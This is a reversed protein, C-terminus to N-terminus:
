VMLNKGQLIKSDYPNTLIEKTIKILNEVEKRDKRKLKKFYKESSKSFILKHFINELNILM